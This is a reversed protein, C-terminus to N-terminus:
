LATTNMPIKMIESHAEVTCNCMDVSFKFTHVYSTYMVQLKYISLSM